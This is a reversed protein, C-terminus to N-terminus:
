IFEYKRNTEILVPLGNSDSSHIMITAKDDADIIEQFKKLVKKKKRKLAYGGFVIKASVYMSVMFLVTMFLIIGFLIVAENGNSSNEM